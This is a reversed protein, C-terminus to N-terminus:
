DRERRRIPLWCPAVKDRNIARYHLEVPETFFTGQIQQTRLSPAGNVNNYTHYAMQHLNETAREMVESWNGILKNAERPGLEQAKTIVRALLEGDRQAYPTGLGTFPHTTRAADGIVAVNDYAGSGGLRTTYRSARRLDSAFMVPEVDYRAGSMKRRALTQEVRKKQAVPDGALSAVEEPAVEVLVGTKEKMGLFVLGLDSASSGAPARERLLSITQDGPRDIISAIIQTGRGEVKETPIGFLRALQDSFGAGAAVTLFKARYRRRDRGRTEVEPGIRSGRSRVVPADFVVEVGLDDAVDYLDKEYPGANVFGARFRNLANRQVLPDKSEETTVYLGRYPDSHFYSQDPYRLVDDLWGEVRQRNKRVDPVHRRIPDNDVTSGDLFEEIRQLMPEIKDEALGLAANTDLAQEHMSFVRARTAWSSKDNRARQEPHRRAELVVVRATPDAQKLAIAHGLGGPGAGVVLYDAEVVDGRGALAPSAVFLSALAITVARLARM